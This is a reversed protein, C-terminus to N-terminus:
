FTKYVCPTNNWATDSTHLYAEAKIRKAKFQANLKAIRDKKARVSMSTMPTAIKYRRGEERLDSYIAGNYNFTERIMKTIKSQRKDTPKVTAKTNNSKATAKM